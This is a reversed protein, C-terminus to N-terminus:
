HGSKSLLHCKPRAGETLYKPSTKLNGAAGIKFSTLAYEAIEAGKVRWLHFYGSCCTDAPVLEVAKWWVTHRVALSCLGMQALSSSPPFPSSLPSLLILCAATFPPLFPPPGLLCIGGSHGHWQQINITWLWMTGVKNSIRASDHQAEM